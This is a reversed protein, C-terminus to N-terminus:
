TARLERAPIGVVVVGPRVDDVVVAGAGVIADRGIRQGQRITAGVGIHAGDGIVVHGAVRAGTAVHAHAGVVVDHDVISGTNILANTSLQVDVGVIAGALVVAGPAIRASAAVIARTHVVTLPRLGSAAAREFLRQRAFTDARSGVGMAFAEVGERRLSELLDDGGLVPIGRIERGAAGPDADLVGIVDVATDLSLAELVVKAHGGAGLCVVKM